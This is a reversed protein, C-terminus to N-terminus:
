RSQIFDEATLRSRDPDIGSDILATRVALQIARIAAQNNTKHAEESALDILVAQYLLTDASQQRRVPTDLGAGALDFTSAVQRRAGIISKGPPPTTLGKAAGWMGLRYIAVADIVNGSRLGFASLARDVM